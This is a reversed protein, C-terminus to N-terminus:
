QKSSPAKKEEDPMRTFDHSRTSGAQVILRETKEVPKGGKMWRVRIEYAFKKGPTLPPSYYYRSEGTQRTQVGDVWVTADAPVHLWIHAKREADPSNKQARMGRDFATLFPPLYAGGIGSGIGFSGASGAAESGRTANSVTSPSIMPSPTRVQSPSYSSPATGRYPYGADTSGPTQAQVVGAVSAAALLALPFSWKNIESRM